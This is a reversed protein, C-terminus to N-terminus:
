ADKTSEIIEDYEINILKVMQERQKLYINMFMFFVRKIATIIMM